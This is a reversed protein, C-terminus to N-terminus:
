LSLSPRRVAAELRRLVRRKGRETFGVKSWAVVIADIGTRQREAESLVYWNLSLEDDKKLWPVVLTQFFYSKDVAHANNGYRFAIVPSTGAAYPWAGGLSSLVQAECPNVAPDDNLGLSDLCQACLGGSILLGMLLTRVRRSFM